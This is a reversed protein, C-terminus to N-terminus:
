GGLIMTRFTAASPFRETIARYLGRRALDKATIWGSDIDAPTPYHGGHVLRSRLSYLDTLQRAVQTRESKTKALFYGGHIRFRYTLDGRRADEDYPLLLSELAIAFDLIGDVHNTRAVGSQYRHLALDHESRPDSITYPALQQVTELVKRFRTTTMGSSGPPQLPLTVPIHSVGAMRWNPHSQLRARYGAPNYGALFLGCLWKSITERVDPNQAQRDTRVIIDLSVLPLAPPIFNDTIIGWDSLLSGEEIKTLRRLIADGQASAIRSKTTIGALPISLLYELDAATAVQLVDAAFSQAAKKSVARVNPLRKLHELLAPLLLNRSTWEVPDAEYGAAISTRYYERSTRYDEISTTLIWDAGALPSFFPLNSDDLEVLSSACERVSSVVDNSLLPALRFLPANESVLINKRVIIEGGIWNDPNIEDRNVTIQPESVVSPLGLEHLRRATDARAAAFLTALSDQINVNADPLMDNM